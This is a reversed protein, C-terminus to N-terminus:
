VPPGGRGAWWGPGGSGGSPGIGTQGRGAVPRRLVPAPQEEPRYEGSTLWHTLPAPGPLAGSPQPGPAPPHGRM